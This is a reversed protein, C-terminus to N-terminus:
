NANAYQRKRSDNNAALEAWDIRPSTMEAVDQDDNSVPDTTYANGTPGFVPRLVPAKNQVPAPILSEMDRLEDLSKTGLNTVLRTKTADDKVNATLKTVLEAKAKTVIDHANTIAERDAPDLMNWIEDRTLKIKDDPMIEGEQNKTVPKNKVSAEGEASEDDEADEEDDKPKKKIYPLANVVEENNEAIGRLREDSFQSLIMEDGAKWCGCSNEILAEIIESRQNSTLM